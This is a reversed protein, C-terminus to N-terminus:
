IEVQWLPKNHISARADASYRLIEGNISENHNMEVNKAKPPPGPSHGSDLGVSLTTISSLPPSGRDSAAAAATCHSQELM